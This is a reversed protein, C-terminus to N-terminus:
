RCGIFSYIRQATKNEKRYSYFLNNNEVTCYNSLTIKQQPVGAVLAQKLNEGVLDYYTNHAIEYHAVSIAPGFHLELETLSSGKDKLVQLVKATIEGQSGKRGAHITGWCGLEKDFLLIPLCDATKVVLVIGKRDSLMADAVVKQESSNVWVVETGHVQEALVYQAFLGKINTFDAIRTSVGAFVLPDFNDYKIIKKM